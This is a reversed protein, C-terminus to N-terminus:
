INKLKQKLSDKIDGLPLGCIVLVGVLILSVVIAFKITKKLIKKIKNMQCEEMHWDVCKM